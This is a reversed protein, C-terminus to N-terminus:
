VYEVTHGLCNRYRQLYLVFGYFSRRSSRYCTCFLSLSLTHTHSLSFLFFILANKSACYVAEIIALQSCALTSLETAHCFCHTPAYRESCLMSQLVYSEDGRELMDVLAHFLDLWGALVDQRRALMCIINNSTSRIIQEPDVLSTLLLTKVERLTAPPM